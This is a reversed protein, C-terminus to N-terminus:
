RVSCLPLVAGYGGGRLPSAPNSKRECNTLPEVKVSALTFIQGKQRFRWGDARHRQHLSRADAPEDRRIGPRHGIMAGIAPQNSRSLTHHDEVGARRIWAMQVGDRAGSLAPGRQDQQRVAMGIMGGARCGQGIHQLDGNQRMLGKAILGPQDRLPQPMAIFNGTEGAQMRGAMGGIVEAESQRIANNKRSIM